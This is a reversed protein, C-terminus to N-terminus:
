AVGKRHVLACRERAADANEAVEILGHEDSIAIFTDGFRSAEVTLRLTGRHAANRIAHDTASLFFTM